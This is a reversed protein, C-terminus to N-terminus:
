RIAAHSAEVDLGGCKQCVVTQRFEVVPLLELDHACDPALLPPDRWLADRAMTAAAARFFASPTDDSTVAHFEVAPPIRM